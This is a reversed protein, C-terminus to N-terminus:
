RHVHLGEVPLVALELRLLQHVQHRQEGAVQHQAQAQLPTATTVLGSLLVLVLAFRRM